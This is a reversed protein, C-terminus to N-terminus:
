CGRRRVRRVAEGTAQEDARAPLSFAPDESAAARPVGGFYRGLSSASDFSARQAATPQPPLTPSMVGGLWEYLGERLFFVNEVGRARLMFWGQAAHTGGESYLVLTEGPRPEEAVLDTLSAHVATPIHYAAFEGRSRLDVVRLGPRGERIWSALQLASVHDRETEVELALADLDVSPGRAVDAVVALAGLAAAALALPRRATM